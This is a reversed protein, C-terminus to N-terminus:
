RHQYEAIADRLQEVVAIVRLIYPPCGPNHSHVRNPRHSKRPQPGFVFCSAKGSDLHGLYRQVHQEVQEEDNVAPLSVQFRRVRQRAAKPVRLDADTVTYPLNGVYINM